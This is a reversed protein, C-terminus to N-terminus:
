RLSFIKAREQAGPDDVVRQLQCRLEGIHYNEREALVDEKCGASAHRRPTNSSIAGTGPRLRLHAAPISLLTFEGHWLAM